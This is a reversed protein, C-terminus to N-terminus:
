IETKGKITQEIVMTDHAYQYNVTTANLRYVRAGNAIHFKRAMETLPSLTFIGECMPDAQLKAQLACILKSGAGPAHSWISYAVAKYGRPTILLVEESDPVVDCWAVCITAQRQGDVIWAWIEHQQRWTMPIAPRVPDETTLDLDTNTINILM